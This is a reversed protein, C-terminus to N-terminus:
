EPLEFGLAKLSAEAIDQDQQWTGGSVGIAGILTGEERVPYGGGVPTLRPIHALQAVKPGGTLCANWVHTPIGYSAATWAKGTAVDGTLFPAGDLRGFTRLNGADGTVAVAVEIGIERAAELAAEVRAAAAARSLTATAYSKAQGTTADM